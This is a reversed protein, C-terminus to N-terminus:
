QQTRRGVVRSDLHNLQRSASTTTGGSVISRQCRAPQFSYQCNVDRGPRGRNRKVARALDNRLKGKNLIGRVRRRLLPDLLWVALAMSLDPSIGTLVTASFNWTARDV